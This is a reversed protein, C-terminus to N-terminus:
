FTDFKWFFKQKMDSGKKYIKFVTQDNKLSKKWPNTINSWFNLFSEPIKEKMIMCTQVFFWPNRVSILSFLKWPDRIKSWFSLFIPKNKSITTSLISDSYSYKGFKKKLNKYYFLRDM